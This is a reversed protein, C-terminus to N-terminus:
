LFVSVCECVLPFYVPCLESCVRLSSERDNLWWWIYMSYVGDECVGNDVCAYVVDCLALYVGCAFLKMVVFLVYSMFYFLVFRLHDRSRLSLVRFDCGEYLCM